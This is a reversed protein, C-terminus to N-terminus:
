GTRSRMEGPLRRDAQAPDREMTDASGLTGSGGSPDIDNLSEQDRGAGRKQSYRAKFDDRAVNCAIMRIYGEIAEPHEQAFAHLLHCKDACLKVYTEQVLDDVVQQPVATWQHAARIVSISIPRHFRSVFEEWSARDNSEACARILEQASLSSHHAM